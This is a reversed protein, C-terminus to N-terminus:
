RHKWVPTSRDLFAQVGIEQDETDFLKAFEIAEIEVGDTIGNDLAARITKKAVRMTSMSKMAITQAYEMTKAELDEPEFIHNVLGIRYADEASVNNGTMMMEMAHGYGVLHVLRQTAGYGPILGLNIEPTGFISRTSSIRIDCSCAVECGGGLAFGDIMAITPKNLNWIAEIANDRFIERIEESNKGTFETIDAGAVFSNPKARKGEEPPNPKAGTLVVCRVSDNNEAWKCMQKISKIVDQNLSNLKDPRNITVKAIVGDGNECAIEEVIVVEDM